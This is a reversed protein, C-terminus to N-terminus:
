NTPRMSAYKVMTIIRTGAAPPIAASFRVGVSRPEPSGPIAALAALTARQETTPTVGSFLETGTTRTADESGVDGSMIGMSMTAAATGTTVVRMDTIRVDPPLYFLELTDATQIAETVVHELLETVEINAYFPSSMNERGYGKTYKTRRIAM